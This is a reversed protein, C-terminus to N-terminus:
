CGGALALSCMAEVGVPIADDNFDFGPTHLKPYSGRGEPCLGLLFFTAPIVKGYYSFDEGGMIPREVVGVREAGFVERMSGFWGETLAPDNWTVPYGEVYDITAHCGHARATYHVLEHLRERALARVNDRLTRVTGLLRAEEPIVNHATTGAHFAAVTCVVSDLPDTARSAITQLATVCQASAVIPDIGLHPMAAHAQRGRITISFQDTAALLEGPRTAVRGLGLDPWGHLGFIREIPPGIRSGDLAGDECMRKGGGGGEEAPQFILTVPNPRHGLWSLARAVGVLIATHGDHGCAHMRGEHTSAHAVGTQEVIPLADMDARLAVPRGGERTAPLHALVGTGGALGDVYEVGIEDLEARVRESTLREQYGLEPIRHLDRRLSTLRERDAGVIAGLNEAMESHNGM